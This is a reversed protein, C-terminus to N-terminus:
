EHSKLRKKLEETVKSLDVVEQIGNEMDRIIITDDLLEKQGLIVTYPVKLKDALELQQKLGSKSFNVRTQIGSERLVEFLKFIRKAAEEGLQALFVQPKKVPAKDKGSQRIAEIVREFGFAMGVGATPRGGIAEILGDYRGGGGIAQVLPEPKPVFDPAVELSIEDCPRTIVPMVEFATRNYYDLGRVIYPNLEYPVESEDLYELVRVFHQKSDDDIHDILQPASQTLDQCGTEKCDLLRLTNKTLRTKCDDCLLRRKSKYYEKLIKIYEQRSESQGLSNIQIVVDLGLKKCFLYSLFIIEADAVPNEDGLIEFDLQHFQRYRGAQPRDYRFLPGLSYLKVPQPRNLMGHEIYARAIGPTFEPRMSISDGSRDQFSFMEKTVIDTHEGTTRKYLSTQELIPTEIQGYGYDSFLEHAVNRAYQWYKMHEPLIDKFGRLLSLSKSTKKIKEVQKSQKKKVM